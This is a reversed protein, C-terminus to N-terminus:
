SMSEMSFFTSKTAPDDIRALQDGCHVDIHEPPTRWDAEWRVDIGHHQPELIVRCPGFRTLTPGFSLPQQEKLWSRPVGSCLILSQAEERVFLNRIMMVWEASAWAHQGDGMCGGGTHPHIAEPWQGTPSAARAVGRLLRLYRPDGKRLLVQALTLTLYANMGSHIIDLFFCDDILCHEMLYDVTGEVRPDDPGWLHLPYSAALSGVAGSDMRRYPSAPTGEHRRTSRSRELSRDVAQRLSAAQRQCTDAQADQLHSRLTTALADLGAISWFDDWYYYDNTGLHEASFGAPMLGAHASDDNDPLRKRQIWRGARKLPKLWSADLTKGTMECYRGLLWLVQGNSDWEGSQSQFYGALTQRSTFTQMSREVPEVCNASLLAHLIMAADRFWFRKYTYPGPYVNNPSLILLSRLSSDYLYRVDPDPVDLRATGQLAQAWSAPRGRPLMTKISKDASLDITAELQFPENAQVDYVAAASALGVDCRCFVSEDRRGLDIAVDGQHYTSAVHHDAPRDFRVCPTRDVDWGRRDDHLAIHEVFGAGEPNFPRLSLVFQGPVPMDARCTLRCSASDQDLLVCAHSVLRLEEREIVTRVALEDDDMLLQQDIRSERSPCLPDKDEPLLWADLSWGDWFPTLLGRPDVIPMAECGPCGVATWNRHTLNVQAFSFGRPLFAKSRPDFQQRVWYPWNWDLNQQIVKGNIAGRAHLAIGARLLEIPAAVESPQALNELRALVQLPDLVGHARALARILWRWPLWQKLM